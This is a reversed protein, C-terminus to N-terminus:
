KGGLAGAISLTLVLVAAPTVLVLLAEVASLKMLRRFGSYLAVQSWAVAVPTGVIPIWHLFWTSGWGYVVIRLTADFVNRRGLLRVALAYPFAAGVLVAFPLYVGVSLAAGLMDLATSQFHVFGAVHASLLAGVVSLTGFVAGYLLAPLNSPELAMRGFFAGPATLVARVTKAHALLLGPVGEGEDRDDEGAARVWAPVERPEAQCPGCLGALGTRDRPRGCARCFGLSVQEHATVLTDARASM